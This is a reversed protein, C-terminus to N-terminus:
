IIFSPQHMMGSKAKLTFWLGLVFPCSPSVYFEKEKRSSFVTLRRSLLLLLLGNRLIRGNLSSGFFLWPVEINVHPTDVLPSKWKPKVPWKPFIINTDIHKFKVNRTRDRSLYLYRLSGLSCWNVYFLSKLIGFLVYFSFTRSHSSCKSRESLWPQFSSM